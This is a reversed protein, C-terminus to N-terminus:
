WSGIDDVWRSDDMWSGIAASDLGGPQQGGGEALPEAEADFHGIRYM